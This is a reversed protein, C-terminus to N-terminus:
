VDVVGNLEAAGRDPDSPHPLDIVNRRGDLRLVARRSGLRECDEDAEARGKASAPAVAGFTILSLTHGIAGQGESQEPYCRNQGGLANRRGHRLDALGD